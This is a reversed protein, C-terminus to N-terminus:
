RARASALWVRASKTAILSQFNLHNLLLGEIIQAEILNAHVRVLPENPFILSGEDVSYLDGTFRFGKLYDLFDPAFCGLGDLYAIDGDSFTFTNISNLLTGLGAFLSFGGRFPHRRFFMDFVVPYNMGQKWYGQAMTLEYFDTFLASLRNM